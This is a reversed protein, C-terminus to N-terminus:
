LPSGKVPIPYNSRVRLKSNVKSHILHSLKSIQDSEPDDTLVLRNLKLAQKIAPKKTQSHGYRM